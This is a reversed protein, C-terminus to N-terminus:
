LPLAGGRLQRSADVVLTVVAAVDVEFRGVDWLKTQLHTRFCRDENPPVEAVCALNVGGARAWAGWESRPNANWGRYCSGFHPSVDARPHMQVAFSGEPLFVTWSMAAGFSSVFVETEYLAAHLQVAFPLRQLILRAVALESRRGLASAVGGLNTVNRSCAKKQGCSFDAMGPLMKFDDHKSMPSRQVLMVRVRHGRARWAPAARRLSVPLSGHSARPFHAVIAARLSRLDNPDDSFDGPRSFPAEPYGWIAGRSYCRCRNSYADVPPRNSLLAFLEKAGLGDNRHRRMPIHALLLETSNAFLREPALASPLGARQWLSKLLRPGVSGHFWALTGMFWILVSTLHNALTHWLPVALLLTEAPADDCSAVSAKDIKRLPLAHGATRQREYNCTPLMAFADPATSFLEGNSVCVLPRLVSPCGSTRGYLMSAIANSEGRFSAARVSRVASINYTLRRMFTRKENSIDTGIDDPSFDKLVLGIVLLVEDVAAISFGRGDVRCGDCLLMVLAAVELHWLAAIVSEYGQSSSLALLGCYFHSLVDDEICVNIDPTDEKKRLGRLIKAAADPAYGLVSRRCSQRHISGTWSEAMKGDVLVSDICDSFASSIWYGSRCYSHPSYGPLHRGKVFYAKAASSRLDEFFRAEGALVTQTQENTLPFQRLLSMKEPLCAYLYMSAVFLPTRLRQGQRNLGLTTNPRDDMYMSHFIKSYAAPLGRLMIHFRTVCNAVVVRVDGERKRGRAIAWRMHVLGKVDDWKDPSLLEPDYWISENEM